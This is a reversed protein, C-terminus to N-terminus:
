AAWNDASALSRSNNGRVLDCFFFLDIIRDIIFILPTAEKLLGIFLPTCIATYFMPLAMALSWHRYFNGDPYLLRARFIHRLYKL